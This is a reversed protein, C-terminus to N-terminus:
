VIGMLYDDLKPNLHRAFIGHYRQHRIETWILVTTVPLQVMLIGPWWVDDIFTWASVNLVCVGAWTLEKTRHIRFVNCFLFFHGVALPIVGAMAGIQAWLWWTAPIALVLLAVDAASLRFGWTRPRKAM